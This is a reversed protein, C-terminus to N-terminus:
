RRHAESVVAPSIFLLKDFRSRFWLFHSGGYDDSQEFALLFATEPTVYLAVRAAGTLVNEPSCLPRALAQTM